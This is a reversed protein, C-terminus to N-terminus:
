KYDQYFYSFKTNRLVQQSLKQMIKHFIPSIYLSDNLHRELIIFQNNYDMSIEMVINFIIHHITIYTINHTEMLFKIEEQNEKRNLVELICNNTNDCLKNFQIFENLNNNYTM